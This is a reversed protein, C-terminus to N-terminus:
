STKPARSPQTTKDSSRMTAAKDADKASQAQKQARRERNLEFINKGDIEWPGLSLNNSNFYDGRAAPDASNAADSANAAGLPLTASLAILAVAIGSKFANNM